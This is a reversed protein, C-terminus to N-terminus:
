GRHEAAFSAFNAATLPRSVLYGQILHCGRDRLLELQSKEEVGEAIVRLNLSRGMAIITSIIATDDPDDAIDRVFSQDIKLEDIPLQRLAALSSYGTGFDDMSIQIGLDKISDLTRLGQEDSEMICTETIEICLFRGELGSDELSAMITAEFNPRSFQRPSINVSISLGGLGNNQWRVNQRCAERLAWEGVSVILGSEEAVAIFTDPSVQGLEASQWRLLAEAGVLAGTRLDIQPQYHLCFEDNDIAKHLANEIALREAALSSMEESYVEYTNKGHGKAHYMAQDARRVLEEAM